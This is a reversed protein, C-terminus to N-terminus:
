LNWALFFKAESNQKETNPFGGNFIGHEIVFSGSIGASIHKSLRYSYTIDTFFWYATGESFHTVAPFPFTRIVYGFANMELRGLTRHEFNLFLKANLGYGYNKFEDMAEPAYYAGAGMFTFGAHAKMEFATDKSVLERYKITWDLANSYQNITSTGPDYKGLTVFDFHMSLGTSMKGKGAYAAPLSFLYGDSFVRINMYRGPNMGLSMSLEFHEYPIRSEQEFPNGYIINVGLHPFFGKYSFFGGENGELSYSTEAYGMGAQLSLQYLNRGYNPPEWGTLFRHVGATPNIALALFEPVGAACAELYLRYFMEGVSFSSTVTTVLDNFSAKNAEGFAEFTVSGLASFLASSYYGFGNVRGTAYYLAGQVPHGIQNVIFDDTDEWEWPVTLNYKVSEATPIAWSQKGTTKYYLINSFMVIGNCLLTEGGAILGSLLIEKSKDSAPEGEEDFAFINRTHTFLLALLLITSCIKKM